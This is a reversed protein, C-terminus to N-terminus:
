YFIIDKVNNIFYFLKLTCKHFPFLSDTPQSFLYCIENDISQYHHSLYSNININTLHEIFRYYEKSSIYSMRRYSVRPFGTYCSYYSALISMRRPLYRPFGTYQSYYSALISMRRPLYRSFGTYQSYYPALISMSMRRPLYRPFGTYQSYYSTLISM